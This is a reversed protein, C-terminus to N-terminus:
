DRYIPTEPLASAPHPTLPWNHRIDRGHSPLPCSAPLISREARNGCQISPSPTPVKGCPGQLDPQNWSGHERADKFCLASQTLQTLGKDGGAETGLCSQGDAGRLELKQKPGRPDQTGHRAVSLCQKGWKESLFVSPESLPLLTGPTVFSRSM